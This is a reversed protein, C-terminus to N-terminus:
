STDHKGQQQQQQQQAEQYRKKWKGWSCERLDSLPDQQCIQDRSEAFEIGVTSAVGATLAGAVVGGAARLTMTNRRTRLAWAEREAPHTIQAMQQVHKRSIRYQRFLRLDHQHRPDEVLAQQATTRPAAHLADHLRFLSEVRPTSSVSPLRLSTASDSRIPYMPNPGLRSPTLGNMPHSADLDAMDISSFPTFGSAAPRHPMEAALPHRREAASSHLHDAAPSHPIESAPSRPTEFAPSHTTESAPSHPFEAAPHHPIEGLEIPPPLYLPNNQFHPDRAAAVAFTVAFQVSLALCHLTRLQHM